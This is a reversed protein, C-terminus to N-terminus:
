LINPIPSEPWARVRPFHERVRKCPGVLPLWAYGFTDSSCEAACVWLGQGEPRFVDGESPWLHRIAAWSCLRSSWCRRPRLTDDEDPRLHRVTAWFCLNSSWSRRTFPDVEPVFTAASQENISGEHSRGGFTGSPQWFRRWSYIHTYFTFM